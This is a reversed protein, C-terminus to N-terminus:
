PVIRGICDALETFWLNGDPGVTIRQPSGGTTPVLFETVAGQPTIRGIQNAYAETFWINGDPGATIGTPGANSTPTPFEIISGQLTIRGIRSGSMETFWLNGDPGPAIGFPSGGATPLAFEALTEAPFPPGKVFNSYFNSDLVVRGIRNVDSETFWLNGDSGLAIGRPASTQDGIYLSLDGSDFLLPGQPEFLDIWSLEGTAWVTGVPGATVRRAHPGNVFLEETVVGTPTVHGMTGDGFDLTPLSETFWLNGDPGLAIDEPASNATPIPFETAAGSPTMRGIQNGDLETFWLNGDPGGAIGVPHGGATPIMFETVSGTAPGNASATLTAIGGPSASLSLTGSRAGSSAPRIAVMISCSAGPDLAGSCSSTSTLLESQNGNTLGLAGTAVEGNNTVTWTFPPSTAAVAVAGFNHRTIASLAAPRRGNASLALGPNGGISAYASLTATRMGSVVPSFRVRFNCSSNAGLTTVGSVCEGNAPSLRNFDSGFAPNLSLSIISASQETPNSVVFTEDQPSGVFVDGFAASSGPAAALILAQASFSTTFTVAGGPTATLTVTGGTNTTGAAPIAIAVQITCSSGAALTGGCGNGSLRIETANYALQLSGTDM